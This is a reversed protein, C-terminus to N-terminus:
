TWFEDQATADFPADWFEAAKGDEIRFVHAHVGDLTKGNQSAHEDVLVVVHNDGGVIDIVDMTFTGGTVESLEVFFAFVEGKSRRDGALPSRGTIHWVIDDAFAAEVTAMDGKIFAEYAGRVLQVNPHEAM